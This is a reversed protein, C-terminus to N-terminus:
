IVKIEKLSLVWKQPLHKNTMYKYSNYHINKGNDILGITKWGLKNPAIFDKKINDAIYWNDNTQLIAKIPKFNKLNPKETGIEESIIVYDLYKEIELAKIKSKQTISRGDTILAIKGSKDKIREFLKLAGEFPKINPQHTRYDTILTAISIQYETALSEFVNLEKRYMSFMKCYIQQWNIYDIKKAIEIYASKLYDIENYLTDDLDFVITTKNNVPLEM